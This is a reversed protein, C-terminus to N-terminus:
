KKIIIKKSFSIGIGEGKVIYVGDQLNSTNVPETAIDTLQRSIERGSLDFISIMVKESTFSKKTKVSFETKAPNPYLIIGSDEVVSDQTNLNLCSVPVSFDEVQDSISPVLTNASGATKGSKANAGLGRKAFAEWIMCKNEGNNIAQDAAIIADRGKIFSPYCGQLKLANAVLQMMKASGSNMNNAIDNSFGYKDAFKWHLDWLMTAWIFGISHVDISFSGDGNSYAMGNTDGYTYSNVSFDTSYKAPRIGSGTTSQNSVYTGVGRSDAATANASNTIMLAYFDSWGEGMQENALFPNLCSYGNGTSRNSIGHTYEHAIIGNDMSGDLLNKKNQLSVNVNINADLKEKIITGEENNVSLGPISVTIGSGVMDGIAQNPDANYIIVAVAGKDQASRFKQDFPCDGRQILAIKGTLNSNSLATCGNLPSALVVDATLPTLPLPKGFDTNTGTIPKRSILEAPSNYNLYNRSEWLYMQMRPAYGDPPTAFNANNIGGGDRAESLVPDSDTFAEGKGFNNAQFNRGEENFGFRYFIDHMKNSLYFLNTISADKYTVPEKSGDFPFDFVRNSGGEAISSPSNNGTEDAYTYTNNGRTTTYQSSGDDHWGLPSADIFWPDTLLARGGFTPAEVPLPFVRYSASQAANGVSNIKTHPSDKKTKLAFDSASEHNHSYPSDSFDCSLTLNSKNILEGNKADILINWYNNTGHEFFNLAYILQLSQDEKPLYALETIVTNHKRVDFTYLSADSKLGIKNLVTSFNSKVDFAPTRDVARNKESSIEIFNESLYSVAENKILVSSIAGYVPIDNYTQNINIVKGELTKEKQVNLVKFSADNYIKGSSSRRLYDGIIDSESTQAYSLGYLFLASIAIRFNYRKM